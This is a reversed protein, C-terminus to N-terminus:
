KQAESQASRSAESVPQKGHSGVQVGEKFALASVLGCLILIPIAYGFWPFDDKKFGVAIGYGMTLLFVAIILVGIVTVTISKPESM